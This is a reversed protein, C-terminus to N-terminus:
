TRAEDNNGLWVGLRVSLLRLEVNKEPTAPRALWEQRRRLLEPKDLSTEYNAILEANRRDLPTLKKKDMEKLPHYWSQASFYDNLWKKRFPNGARAYITNRMLTLERLTRDKLDQPTIQREYYLPRPATDQQAARTTAAVNQTAAIGSLCAVLGVFIRKFM